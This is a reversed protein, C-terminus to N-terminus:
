LCKEKYFMKSFNFFVFLLVPFVLLYIFFLGSAWRKGVVLPYGKFNKGEKTDRLTKNCLKSLVMFIEEESNSYTTEKEGEIDYEFLGYNQNLEKEKAFKVVVDRKVLRLKKLFDNQYDKFRSDTPELYVKIKLKGMHKLFDTKEYSFSHKKSMTLDFQVQFKYFVFVAVVFVCLLCIIYKLKNRINLNFYVYGSSLFLFSLLLLYSVCFSSFIGNEFVKLVATLSFQSIANAFPIVNMDKGFDIFWSSIIIWLAFVSANASKKFIVSSFVSVALVFFGYLLYAFVLLFSELLPIFGGLFHWIAFVPFVLLITIVVVLFGALLKFLFVSRISFPLQLLLLITNNEKEKGILRVFLFPAVLSFVMFLGGFTPVFVGFVPEFGAAYLPNSIANVSAKSYLDVSSYFSYAVILFLLLFYIVATKTKLIDKLEKKLLAFM